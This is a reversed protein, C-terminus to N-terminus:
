RKKAYSTLHKVAFQVTFVILIPLIIYLAALLSPLRGNSGEESLHKALIGAYAWVGVAGYAWDNNKWMTTIIIAAGVILMAVTWVAPSLGFGDWGFSLLWTAVNAITAVTIWGFYVSFPLRVLAWEKFSYRSNALLRNIQILTVLLGAMIIVSLWFIKYQWALLWFINLLSSLAFLKSVNNLARNAIASKKPKWVEFLRFFFLGLLLYILGWIAFTFGAPAFLNPYSDSIGATNSGGILTTSGAIWNLVLVIIYAFLAAFGWKIDLKEQKKFWGFM